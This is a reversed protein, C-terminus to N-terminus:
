LIYEMKNEFDSFGFDNKATKPGANGFLNIVNTLMKLRLGPVM